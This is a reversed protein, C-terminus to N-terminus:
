VKCLTITFCRLWFRDFCVKPTCFRLLLHYSFTIESLYVPLIEKQYYMRMKWSNKRSLHHLFFYLFCIASGFFCIWAKIYSNARISYIAAYVLARTYCSSLNTWSLHLFITLSRLSIEKNIAWAFICEFAQFLCFGGSFKFKINTWLTITASLARIM